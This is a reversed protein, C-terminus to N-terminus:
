VYNRIVRTVVSLVIKDYPLISIVRSAVLDSQNPYLNLIALLNWCQKNALYWSWCCKNFCKCSLWLFLTSGGCFWGCERANSASAASAIANCFTFNKPCFIKSYTTKGWYTKWYQNIFNEILFLGFINQPNKEMRKGKKKRQPPKLNLYLCTKDGKALCM